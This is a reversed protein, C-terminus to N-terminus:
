GFFSMLSESTLERANWKLDDEHRICRHVVPRFHLIKQVVQLLEEGVADDEVLELGQGGVRNAM